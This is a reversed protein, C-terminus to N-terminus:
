CVYGTHAKYSESMTILNLSIYTNDIEKLWFFTRRHSSDMYFELYHKLMAFFKHTNIDCLLHFNASFDCLFIMNDNVLIKIAQTIQPIQHLFFLKWTKPLKSVFFSEPFM